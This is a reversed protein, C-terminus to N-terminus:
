SQLIKKQYCARCLPCAHFPSSDGWSFQELALLCVHHFVHSCSLLVAERPRRGSGALPALCISCESAGRQLAQLM